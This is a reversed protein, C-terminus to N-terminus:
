DRDFFDFDDDDNRGWHFSNRDYCLWWKARPHWNGARCSTLQQLLDQTFADAILNHVRSTVLVDTYFVSTSLDCEGQAMKELCPTDIDKLGYYPYYDVLNAVYKDFDFRYIRQGTRYEVRNLMRRFERNYYSAVATVRDTLNARKFAPAFGIDAYTPSYIHKAGADILRYLASEIGEVADDIMSYQIPGPTSITEIVDHGGIWLLYLTDESAVGDNKKLYADLMASLDTEEYRGAWADSMSYNNGQPEGELHYSTSIPLGLNESLFDVIVPGDALRDEWFIPPLGGALAAYNGTDNFTGSFVVFDNFGTVNTETKEAVAFTSTLLSATLLLTSRLNKM